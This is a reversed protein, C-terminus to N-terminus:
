DANGPGRQGTKWPPRRRGDGELAVLHRRGSRRDPSHRGGFTSGKALADMLFIYKESAGIKFVSSARMSSGCVCRSGQLGLPAIGGRGRPAFALLGSFALCDHLCVHRWCGLDASSSQDSSISRAGIDGQQERVAWRLHHSGHPPCFVGKPKGECLEILDIAM